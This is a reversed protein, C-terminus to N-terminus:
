LLSVCCAECRARLASHWGAPGPVTASLLGILAAEDLTRLDDVDDWGNADFGEAYEDLKHLSLLEAVTAM